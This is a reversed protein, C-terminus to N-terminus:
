LYFIPWETDCFPSTVTKKYIVKYRNYLFTACFARRFTSLMKRPLMEIIQLLLLSLISLFIDIAQAVM